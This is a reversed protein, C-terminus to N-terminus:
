RVEEFKHYFNRKNHESHKWTKGTAKNLAKVAQAPTVGKDDEMTAIDGNGYHVIEVAAYMENRGTAYITTREQTM